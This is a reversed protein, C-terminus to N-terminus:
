SEFCLSAVSNFIPHEPLVKLPTGGGGGCTGAVRGMLHELVGIPTPIGGKPHEVASM